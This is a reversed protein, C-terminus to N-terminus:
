VLEVHYGLESLMKFDDKASTGSTTLMNGSITANAGSIFCLYGNDKMLGRGGALRISSDPIIFRFVACIRAMDEESLLENNELPTGKIPNLMNIPISKVDLEKITFAMDIRDIYTEGLGFIGGCCIEMGANKASKIANIKESFTHTTCVNPFFRESTEINNHVRDVGANKLKRYQNENLLGFSVCIDTDNSEKIKRIVRCMDDIDSDNMGKGSTVLSFRPIGSESSEKAASILKDDSPFSYVDTGTNWFSSQSCFKCNESCHGSKANTISCM